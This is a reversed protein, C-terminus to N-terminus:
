KRNKLKIFIGLGIIVILSMILLGIWSKSPIKEVKIEIPTVSDDKENCNICTEEDNIIETKTYSEDRIEIFGIQFESLETVKFIYYTAGFYPRVEPVIMKWRGNHNHQIILDKSNRGELKDNPIRLTIGISDFSLINTKLDFGELATFGNLKTPKNLITLDVVVNKAIPETLNIKIERILTNKNNIGIPQNDKMIEFVRTTFLGQDDAKFFNEKNFFPVIAIGGGYAMVQGVMLVAMMIWLIKKM